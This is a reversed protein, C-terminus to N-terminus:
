VRRGGVRAALLAGAWICVIGTLGTEALPRLIWGSGAGAAILMLFTSHVPGLLLWGGGVLLGPGPSGSRESLWLGVLIPLLLLVAHSPWVLSATLPTAAVWAAAVAESPAGRTLWATAVAVAAAAALSALTVWAPTTGAGYFAAPDLLRLMSAQPALNERFGTGGELRPFVRTWYEALYGPAAILWLIAIAAAAAALMRVRRGLAIALLLPAQIIKIAMGAGIAVGAWWRDGRVWGLFWVGTLALLLLNVQGGLFNLRTPYFAVALIAGFAIVDARCEGLALAVMAIFLALCLQFAVAALLVAAREPIAALPQLLWALLPQYIYAQNLTPDSIGAHFFPAYPDRGAAVDRAGALYIGFDSGLFSGAAIPQILTQLFHVALIPLGAM